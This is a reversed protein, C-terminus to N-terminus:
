DCDDAYEMKIKLGEPALQICFRNTYSSLSSSGVFDDGFLHQGKGTALFYAVASYLLVPATMEGSQFPDESSVEEAHGCCCDPIGATTGKAVLHWENETTCREIGEIDFGTKDENEKAFVPISNAQTLKIIGAVSNAPVAILVCHDRCRSLLEDPFPIQQFIERMKALDYGFFRSAEEPGFYNSGMIKRARALNDAGNGPSEKGTKAIKERM